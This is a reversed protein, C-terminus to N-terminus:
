GKDTRAYIKSDSCGKDEIRKEIQLLVIFEEYIQIKNQQKTEYISRRRSECVTNSEQIHIDTSRESETM